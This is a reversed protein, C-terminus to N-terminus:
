GKTKIKTQLHYRWVSYRSFVHFNTIQYLCNPLHNYYFFHPFFMVHPDELVSNTHIHELELFSCWVHDEESTFGCHCSASATDDEMPKAGDGMDM